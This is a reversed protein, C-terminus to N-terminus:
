FVTSPSSPKSRSTCDELVELYSGMVARNRIGRTGSDCLKSQFKVLASRPASMERRATM